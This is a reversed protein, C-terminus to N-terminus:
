SNKSKYVAFYLYGTANAVQADPDLEAQKYEDMIADKVHYAGGGSIWIKDIEAARQWKGRTLSLAIDQLTSQGRLREEHFEEIDGAVNVSGHRALEELRRDTPKERVRTEYAERLTDKLLHVGGEASGSRFDVFQGDDDVAVDVTFEGFDLVGTREYNYTRSLQGDATFYNHYITGYPQPMVNVAVINAIFDALDTKVHHQGLFSQKLGVADRMHDVPLGTALHIHIVDGNTTGAFYQGLARKMMRLRFAHGITAEDATRGGLRLQQAQGTQTRCLEGVYWDGAEDTVQDGPHRQSLMEHQFKVNRARGCVSPFVVKGDLGVMKVYGYGVDLGIFHTVDPATKKKRAM